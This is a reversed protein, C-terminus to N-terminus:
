DYALLCIYRTAGPRASTITVLKTYNPVFRYPIVPTVNVPLDQDDYFIFRLEADRERRRARIELEVRLRDDETRTAQQSQLWFRQWGKTDLFIVRGVDGALTRARYAPARRLALEGIESPSMDIKLRDKALRAAPVAVAPRRSRYACTEVFLEERSKEDLIRFVIVRRGPEERDAVFRLMSRLQPPSIGPATFFAAGGLRDGLGEALRRAFGRAVSGPEVGGAEVRPLTIVAPLRYQHQELVETIEDALRNAFQDFDAESLPEVGSAHVVPRSGPSDCGPALVLLLMVLSRHM